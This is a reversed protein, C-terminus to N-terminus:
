DTRRLIEHVKEAIARAAAAHDEPEWHWPDRPSPEVVPALDLFAVRMRTALAGYAAGLERSREVAGPSLALDDADLPGVIHPAVLLPTPARGPERGYEWSRRVISVLEGAGRSIDAVSLYPLSVDNTGLLIIVLDLPASTAMTPVILDRGSRFPRPLRDFVTTRGNLGAETVEFDSGLQDAMLRPWRETPGYREDESGPVLGWTNSDGYCLITRV